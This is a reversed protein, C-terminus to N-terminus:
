RRNLAQRGGKVGVDKPTFMDGGGVKPRPQHACFSNRSYQILILFGLVPLRASHTTIGDTVFIEDPGEDDPRSDVLM